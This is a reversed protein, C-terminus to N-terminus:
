AQPLRASLRARPLHQTIWLKSYSVAQTGVLAAQKKREM